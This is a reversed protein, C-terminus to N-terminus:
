RAIEPLSVMLMLHDCMMIITLQKVRTIKRAVFGGRRRMM